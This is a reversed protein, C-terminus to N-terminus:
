EDLQLLRKIQELKEPALNAKAWDPGKAMSNRVGSHELKVQEGKLMGCTAADLPAAGVNASAAALALLALASLCWRMM